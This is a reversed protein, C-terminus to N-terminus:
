CVRRATERVPNCRDHALRRSPNGPTGAALAEDGRSTFVQIRRQELDRPRLSGAAACEISPHAGSMLSLLRQDCEVLVQACKDSIPRLFPAFLLQEILNREARFYLRKGKLKGGAWPEPRDDCSIEALHTPLHDPNSGFRYSFDDVGGAIDARRLAIEGVSARASPNEPALALVRRYNREALEFEGQEAQLDALRLRAELDDPASQLVRAYYDTAQDPKGRGSLIRAMALLGARDDSGRTLKRALRLAEVGEGAEELAVALDARYDNRGPALEVARALIGAADLSKGAAQAVLGIGHMAVGVDRDMELLWHFFSEAEAFRGLKLMAEGCRRCMAADHDLLLRDDVARLKRALPEVIDEWGQGRELRMLDLSQYWLSKPRDMLWRWDSNVPLLVWCPKGLAGAFHVTSNDVSIVLDLAAIQAAFPDMDGLPDVDRDWHVDIGTQAKLDALDRTNDGYQLSIFACDPDRLVPELLALDISRITASDRSGSRWSIGVLRKGPFLARYKRRLARAQEPDPVLYGERNPLNEIDADLLRLLDGMGTKAGIRSHDWSAPLERRDVLRFDPFARRFLRHMRLNVEIVLSGALDRLGSFLIGFMVYDGIGQESYVVLPREGQPRGDWEPVPIDWRRDQSSREWRADYLELGEKFRGMRFSNLGKVMRLIQNDPAVKLGQDLLEQSRAFDGESMMITALERFAEVDEPHREVYALSLERAKEIEGLWHYIECIQKHRQWDSLAANLVEQWASQAEARRGLQELLRQRIALCHGSQSAIFLGKEACALAEDLSRGQMALAWALQWCGDSSREDISLIRRCLIEVDRAQKMMLRAKAANHLVPLRNPALELAKEYHSLAALLHKANFLLDALAQHCDVLSPDAKLARRFAREASFIEEEDRYVIGLNYQGNAHDPALDVLEELARRMGKRNGSKHARAAENLLQKLRPNAPPVSAPVQDKRVLALATEPAPEGIWIGDLHRAGDDIAGTLALATNGDRGM